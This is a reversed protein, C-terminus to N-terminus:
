RDLSVFRIKEPALDKQKAAYLITNLNQSAKDLRSIEKNLLHFSKLKADHEKQQLEFGILKLLFEKDKEKARNLVDKVTNKLLSKAKKEM